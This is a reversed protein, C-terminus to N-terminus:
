LKWIWYKYNKRWVMFEEIVVKWHCWTFFYHGDWYDRGSLIRINL